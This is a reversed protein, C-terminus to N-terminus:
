PIMAPVRLVRRPEGSITSIIRPYIKTQAKLTRRAQRHQYSMDEDVRPWGGVAEGRQSEPTPDIVRRYCAARGRFTPPEESRRSTLTWSSSSALPAMAAPASMTMGSPMAPQSSAETTHYKPPRQVATSFVDRSTVLPPIVSFVNHLRPM